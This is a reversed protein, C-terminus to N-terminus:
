GDEDTDFESIDMADVYDSMAKVLEDNPLNRHQTITKGSVTVVKDLPPFTYRRVDEAFPIKVMILSEFDPEIEPGLLVIDPNRNAKPVYRAVAFSKVEYLAHIFSSLALSARGNGSQAVLVHTKEM